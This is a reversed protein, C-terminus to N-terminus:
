EDVTGTQQAPQMGVIARFAEDWPGLVEPPILDKAAAISRVKAATAELALLEGQATTSQKDLAGPANTRAQDLWTKEQSDPLGGCRQLRLGKRGTSSPRGALEASVDLGEGY